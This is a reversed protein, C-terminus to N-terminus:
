LASPVTLMRYKVSSSPATISSGSTRRYKEFESATLVAKREKIAKIGVLDALRLATVLDCLSYCALTPRADAVRAAVGVGPRQRRAFDHVARVADEAM